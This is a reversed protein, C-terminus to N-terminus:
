IKLTTYTVFINLALMRWVANFDGMLFINEYNESLLDLNKGISNLHHSIFNRHPNYSCSILWKKSKLNLEIFFGEISCNKMPVLKCPIDEERVYVLVGGGHSNRDSRFPPGFGEILFQMSPFSNDLKTESIMLIDINGKIGNVLQDFKNRISNINLHAFILRNLNNKLVNITSNKETLETRPFSVENKLLHIQDNLSKIYESLYNRHFTSIGNSCSKSNVQEPTPRIPTNNSRLIPISNDSNELLVNNYLSETNVYAM